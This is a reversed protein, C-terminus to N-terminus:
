LHLGENSLGQILSNAMSEELQSGIVILMGQYLEM